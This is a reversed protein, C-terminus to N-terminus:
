VIYSRLERKVPENHESFVKEVGLKELQFGFADDEENWAFSSCNDNLQKEYHHKEIKASEICTSTYVIIYKESVDSSIDSRKGSKITKVDGM